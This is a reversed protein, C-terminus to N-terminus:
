DGFVLWWALISLIGVAVVWLLWGSRDSERRSSQQMQQIVQEDWSLTTNLERARRWTRELPPEGLGRFRACYIGEERRTVEEIEIEYESAEDILKYRGPRLVKSVDDREIWGVNYDFFGEWASDEEDDHRRNWQIYADAFYGAVNANFSNM